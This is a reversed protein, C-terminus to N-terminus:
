TPRAKERALICLARFQRSGGYVVQREPDKESATHLAARSEPMHHEETSLM